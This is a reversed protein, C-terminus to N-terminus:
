LLVESFRSLETSDDTTWDFGRVSTLCPHTVWPQLDTCGFTVKCSAPISTLTLDPLYVKDEITMFASPTASGWGVCSAKSRRHRFGLFM